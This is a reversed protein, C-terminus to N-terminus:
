DLLFDPYSELADSAIGQPLKYSFGYLKAVDSINKPQEVKLEDNIEKLAKMYNEANKVNASTFIFGVGEPSNVYNM